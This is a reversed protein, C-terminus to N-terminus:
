DLLERARGWGSTSYGAVGSTSYRALSALVRISVVGLGVAVGVDPVGPQRRGRADCGGGVDVTVLSNGAVIHLGYADELAVFNMALQEDDAAPHVRRGRRGAVIVGPYTDMQRLYMREM